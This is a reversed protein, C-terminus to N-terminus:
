ALRRDWSDTLLELRFREDARSDAEFRGPNLLGYPDVSRKFAIDREGIEKKGVSRVNSTHSNSVVAGASEFARAAATFAARVADQAELGIGIDILLGLRKGKIDRPPDGQVAAPWDIAESWHPHEPPNHLRLLLLDPKTHKMAHALALAARQELDSRTMRFALQFARRSHREVLVRFADGDGQQARALVAAADSADM